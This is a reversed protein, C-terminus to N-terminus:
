CFKQYSTCNQANNTSKKEMFHLGMEEKQYPVKMPFCFFPIWWCLILSYFAMNTNNSPKITYLKDKQDFFAAAIVVADNMQDLKWLGKIM